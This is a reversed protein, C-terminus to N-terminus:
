CLWRSSGAWAQEFFLPLPCGPEGTLLPIVWNTFPEMYVTVEQVCLEINDYSELPSGTLEFNATAQGQLSLVM